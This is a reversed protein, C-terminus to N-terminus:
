EYMLANVLKSCFRMGYNHLHGESLNMGTSSRILIRTFWWALPNKKLPSSEPRESTTFMTLLSPPAFGTTQFSNKLNKLLKFMWVLLEIQMTLAYSM